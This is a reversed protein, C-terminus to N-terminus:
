KIARIIHANAHNPCKSRDEIGPCTGDEISCVVANIVKDGEKPKNEVPEVVVENTTNEENM